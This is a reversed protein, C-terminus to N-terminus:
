VFLIAQLLVGLWLLSSRGKDQAEKKEEGDGGVGEERGEVEEAM